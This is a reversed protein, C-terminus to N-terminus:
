TGDVECTRLMILLACTSSIMLSSDPSSSRSFAQMLRFCSDTLRGCTTHVSTFENALLFRLVVMTVSESATLSSPIGVLTSMWVMASKPVVCLPLVASMSLNKLAVNSWMPVFPLTFFCWFHLIHRYTQM